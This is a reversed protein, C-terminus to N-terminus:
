KKLETVLSKAANVNAGATVKSLAEIAKPKNEQVAYATGIMYYINSAVAPDKQAAAAAEGKATVENYKKLVNATQIVLLSAEPSSPALDALAVVKDFDKAEAAASMAPLVYNNLDAAAAAADQAYKSNNAGAEIISQFLPTAKDLQGLEAYAKATFATLQINSPDQEYGKQFSELATAFDKNNFATIGKQQYVGSIARASQRRVVANNYLDASEEAQLFQTIADDLNGGKFSSMGMSFYVKPLLAQVEKVLPLGEEGAGVGLKMSEKLLEIAETPNNAQIKEMAAQYKANADDLSQAFSTCVSLFLALVSILLAKM